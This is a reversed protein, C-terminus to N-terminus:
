ESDDAEPSMREACRQSRRRKLTSSAFEGRVKESRTSGEGLGHRGRVNERTARLCARGAEKGGSASDTVREERITGSLNVESGLVVSRGVPLPSAPM